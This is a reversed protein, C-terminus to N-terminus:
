PRKGPQSAGHDRSETANRGVPISLLTWGRESMANTLVGTSAQKYADAFRGKVSCFIALLYKIWEIRQQVLPDPKKTAEDILFEDCEALAEAVNRALDYDEVYVIKLMDILKDDNAVLRVGPNGSDIMGGVLPGSAMEPFLAKVGDITIDKAAGDAGDNPGGVQPAGGALMDQAPIEDKQGHGNGNGAM